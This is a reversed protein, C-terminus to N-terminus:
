KELTFSPASYLQKVQIYDWITDPLLYRASWGTGVLARIRTASIELQTVELPLILGTPQEALQAPNHIRHAELFHRLEGGQPLFEGPRKIVLFHALEILEV